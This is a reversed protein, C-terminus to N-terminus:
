LLNDDPQLTSIQSREGTMMQAVLLVIQKEEDETIEQRDGIVTQVALEVMANREQDTM